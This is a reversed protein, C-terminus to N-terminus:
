GETEVNGFLDAYRAQADELQIKTNRIKLGIELDKAVFVSSNFDTPNIITQTNGPNIDLTNDRDMILRELKDQLDEIQRRYMKETDKVIILGRDERLQKNSRMLNQGFKGNKLVETNM